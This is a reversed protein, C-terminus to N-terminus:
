SLPKRTMLIWIYGIASGIFYYVFDSWIFTNGILASGIFTTRIVELFSPHWLQLFELLCTTILVTIAVLGPAARPFIFVIILCWFIEYLIGTFSNNIWDQMFGSYLKATSGLPTIILLSIASFKRPVWKNSNDKIEQLFKKIKHFLYNKNRITM